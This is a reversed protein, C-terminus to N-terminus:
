KWLSRLDVVVPEDSPPVEGIVGPKEDGIVDDHLVPHEEGNVNASNVNVGAARLVDRATVIRDFHVSGTYRRYQGVCPVCVGSGCAPCASLAVAHNTRVYRGYEGPVKVFIFHGNRDEFAKIINM